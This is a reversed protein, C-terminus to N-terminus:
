EATKPCVARGLDGEYIWQQSLLVVLVVRRLTSEDRPAFSKM